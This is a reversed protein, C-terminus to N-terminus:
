RGSISVVHHAVTRFTTMVNHSCQVFAMTCWETYRPEPFRLKTYEMTGEGVSCRSFFAIVPRTYLTRATYCYVQVSSLCIQAFHNSSLVWISLHWNVHRDKQLNIFVCLNEAPSCLFQRFHLFWWLNWIFVHLFRQALLCLPIPAISSRTLKTILFPLFFYFKGFILNKPFLTWIIASFKPIQVTIKKKKKMKSSSKLFILSM